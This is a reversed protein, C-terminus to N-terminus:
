INMQSKEPLSFWSFYFELGSEVLTKNIFQGVGVQNSPCERTGSGSDQQIVTETHTQIDTQRDTM